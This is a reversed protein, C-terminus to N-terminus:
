GVAVANAQQRAVAAGLRRAVVEAM